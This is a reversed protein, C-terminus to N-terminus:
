EYGNAAFYSVLGSERFEDVPAGIVLWWADSSGLNNFSRYVGPPVRIADYPRAEVITNGIMMQGEGKLLVHVEEATAHRHHQGSQGPGVRDICFAIHECGLREDYDRSVYPVDTPWPHRYTRQRPVKANDPLDDWSVKSWAQRRPASTQSTDSMQEVAHIANKNSAIILDM